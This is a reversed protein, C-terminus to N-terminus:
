LGGGFQQVAPVPYVTERVPELETLAAIRFQAREVADSRGYRAVIDSAQVLMNMAGLAMSGSMLVAHRAGDGSTFGFLIGMGTEGDGREFAVPILALLPDTHLQAHQAFGVTDSEAPGYAHTIRVPITNM